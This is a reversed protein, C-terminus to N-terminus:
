LGGNDAHGAAVRALQEATFVRATQNSYPDDGLYFRPRGDWRCVPCFEKNSRFPDGPEIGTGLCHQCVPQYIPVADPNLTLSFTGLDIEQGDIFFQAM